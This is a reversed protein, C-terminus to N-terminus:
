DENGKIEWANTKKTRRGLMRQGSREVHELREELPYEKTEKSLASKHHLVNLFGLEENTSPCAPRAFLTAVYTNCPNRQVLIM